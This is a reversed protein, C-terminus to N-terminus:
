KNLWIWPLVPKPNRNKLIQKKYVMEQRRIYLIKFGICALGNKALTNTKKAASSKLVLTHIEAKAIKAVTPM